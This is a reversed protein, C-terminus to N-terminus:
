CQIFLLLITLTVDQISLEKYGKLYYRNQTTMLDRTVWISKQHTWWNSGNSTFWLVRRSSCIRMHVCLLFTKCSMWVMIQVWSRWTKIWYPLIIRWHFMLAEFWTNMITKHISTEKIKHLNQKSNRNFASLSKM